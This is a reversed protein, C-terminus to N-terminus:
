RVGEMVRKYDSIQAIKKRHADLSRVYLDHTIICEKNQAQQLIDFNPEMKEKLEYQLFLPDAAFLSRGMFYMNTFVHYGLSSAFIFYCHNEMARARCLFEVPYGYDDLVNALCIIIDVNQQFYRRCSEPFSVDYGIILGIRGLETDICTGQNGSNLFDNEMSWLFWRRYKGIIEGQPSIIVATDFIGDTDYELLGGTIYISNERAKDQLFKIIRGNDIPEAVQKLSSINLGTAFAEPLVVMRCKEKVAKDIFQSANNINAETQDQLVKMQVISVRISPKKFFGM